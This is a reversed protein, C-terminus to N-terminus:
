VARETQKLDHEKYIKNLLKNIFHAATNPDEAGLFLTAQLKHAWQFSKLRDSAPSPYRWEPHYWFMIHKLVAKLPNIVKTQLEVWSNWSPFELNRNESVNKWIM